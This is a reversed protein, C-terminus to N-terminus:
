YSILFEWVHMNGLAAPDKAAYIGSLLAPFYKRKSPSSQVVGELCPLIVMSIKIRPSRTASTLMGEGSRDLHAQHASWAKM